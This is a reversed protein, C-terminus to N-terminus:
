SEPNGDWGRRDWVAQLRNWVDDTMANQWVGGLLRAFSPDAKAEQEIYQIM